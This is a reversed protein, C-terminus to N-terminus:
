ATLSLSWELEESKRKLKLIERASWLLLVIFAVGFFALNGALFDAGNNYSFISNAFSVACAVAGCAYSGERSRTRNLVTLSLACTLLAPIFLCLGTPVLNADEYRLLVVSVPIFAALEAVGIITLRALVVHSFSYKCCMELEAMNYSASRSLETVGALTLFPLFSSIIWLMNETSGAASLHLSYLAAAVAALSLVWVRKRIYGAQGILFDIYRTRPYPLAALFAVKKKPPPAGFAARLESKMKKNV